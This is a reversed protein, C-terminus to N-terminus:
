RQRYRQSNTEIETQRTEEEDAQTHHDLHRQKGIVGSPERGVWIGREEIELSFKHVNPTFTRYTDASLARRKSTGQIKWKAYIREGM